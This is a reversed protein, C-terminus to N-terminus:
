MRIFAGAAPLARTAIRSGIKNVLRDMDADGMVQSGRLDVYNSYTVAQTGRGLNSGALTGGPLNVNPNISTTITGTVQELKKRLAETQSDLGTILGQMILQGNAVLLIKDRAPPGKWSTLDHTFNNLWGKVTGVVSKLGGLLGNLIDQGAKWLWTGADSFFSVISHWVDKLAKGISGLATEIAGTFGGWISSAASAVTHGIEGLITKFFGWVNNWVDKAIKEVDGWLKSWKGTVLDAFLKFLDKLFDLATNITTTIMTWVIKVAGEIIDWGAKLAGETYTIGASITGSILDWAVKVIGWIVDWAMHFVGQILDWGAKFYGIWPLVVIKIMNTILNLQSRLFGSISKWNEAILSVLKGGTADWITTLSGWISSLDDSIRKWEKELPAAIDKWVGSFFKAVTGATGKLWGWFDEFWAKVTKWHTIIELAVGIVLGLPGMLVTLAGAVLNVHAKIWGWAEAATKKLWGWFAELWKKVTSWHTIILLAVLAIATIVLIIPNAELFEMAVSLAEMAEKVMKIIKVVSLVAVLLTALAGVVGLIVAALKQHKSIWDAIPQIIKMIVDLLKTVAPLLATGIRIAAVQVTEKFQALKQNFNSQILEWGNVDKGAGKAADAVKQVNQQFLQGNKASLMLMTNLGTAGGTMKQLAANFTMADPQGAKLLDNFGNAKDALTQFQMMANRQIPPLAYLADRFQKASMGGSLFSNALSQMQPTMGAVMAKLDQAAAASKYWTNLMVTGNKTHAAIAQLLTNMTGTLGNKGLDQSLKNSDIGMQQMMQIQVNNPAQLSRITHALDQSAQQASMGQATMTALAGGVQSFSLGAANAVPLVASLSASLAETTTKGNQVVAILQNMAAVPTGVSKGYDLMITTLANSVTGLDANEAKAGEAAAKLVDLGKAGTFGASGIMYMGKTLQDTATGTSQAINLIGNRVTALLAGTKDMEGGSTALVTTMSQFSAAAKSTLFGLAGVGIATTAAATKLAGLSAAGLGSESSAAIQADKMEATRVTVEREALQLDDLAKIQTLTAEKVAAAAALASEKIVRYSFEEEESLATTAAALEEEAERQLTAWEVAQEQADRVAANSAALKEQAATQLEVAQAYAAASAEAKANAADIEAQSRNAKEAAESIADGMATFTAGVRGLIGSAKDVAELLLLITVEEKGAM